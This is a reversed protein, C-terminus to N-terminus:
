IFTELSTNVLNFRQIARISIEGLLRSYPPPLFFEIFDPQYHSTALNMDVLFAPDRSAGALTLLLPGVLVLGSLVLLALRQWLVGRNDKEAQLLFVASFFAVSMGTLIFLLAHSFLALLLIFSVGAAWWRSRDPTMARHLAWLALPLLGIFALELRGYTTALHIPVVMFLLGAFLASAIRNGLERSLLYMMYGSLAQGLLMM